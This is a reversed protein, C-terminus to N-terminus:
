IKEVVIERTKIGAIFAEDLLYRIVAAKIQAGADSKPDEKTQILIKDNTLVVKAGKIHLITESM